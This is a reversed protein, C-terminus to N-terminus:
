LPLGDYGGQFEGSGSNSPGGNDQPKQFADFLHVKLRNIEANLGQIQLNLSLIHENQAVITAEQSAVLEIRKKRSQNASANNKARKEARDLEAMEQNKRARRMKEEDPMDKDIKLWDVRSRQKGIQVRPVMSLGDAGISLQEHRPRAVAESLSSLSEGKMGTQAPNPGRIDIVPVVTPRQTQNTLMPAEPAVQTAPNWNLLAPDILEAHDFQEPQVPQREFDLVTAPFPDHAPVRAQVDTPVAPLSTMPDQAAFMHIATMAESGTKSIALLPELQQTEEFAQMQLGEATIANDLEPAASHNRQNSDYDALLQDVFPDSSLEPLAPAELDFFNNLPENGPQDQIDGTQSLDFNFNSIDIMGINMDDGLLPFDNSQNNASM